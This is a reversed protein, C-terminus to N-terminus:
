VNFYEKAEMPIDTCISILSNHHFKNDKIMKWLKLYPRRHLEPSVIVVQKNQSFLNEIIAEDYWESRFSDLWVGACALLLASSREYESLRMLVNTGNEIYPLMDPISMDFVFSSQFKTKRIFEDILKYLGDSKINIAIPASVPNSKYIDSFEAAQMLDGAPIDHSIVLRGDSDRFDTEIGFGNKLARVFATSSNQESANLWYGRHAILQM